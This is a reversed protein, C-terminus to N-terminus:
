ARAAARRERDRSLLLAGVAFLATALLAGSVTQEAVLSISGAAVVLMAIPALVYWWWRNSGDGIPSTMAALSTAGTIFGGTLHELALRAALAAQLGMAMALPAVVLAAYTDLGALLAGGVVLAVEITIGTSTRAPWRQGPPITSLLRGGLAAAVFFCVLSMGAAATNGSHTSAVAMALLTANGTQNAVFVGGVGLFSTADLGGAFAILLLM